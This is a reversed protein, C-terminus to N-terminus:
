TRRCNSFRSLQTGPLFMGDMFQGPNEKDRLMATCGLKIM